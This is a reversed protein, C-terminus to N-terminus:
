LFCRGVSGSMHQLVIGLARRHDQPASTRILSTARYYMFLERAPFSWPPGRPCAGLTTQYLAVKFLSNLSGHRLAPRSMEIISRVRVLLNDVFIEREDLRTQRAERYEKVNRSEPPM